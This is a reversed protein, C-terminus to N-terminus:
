LVPQGAFACVQPQQSAPQWVYSARLARLSTAQPRLPVAQPMQAALPTM